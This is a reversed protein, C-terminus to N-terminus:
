ELIVFIEGASNGQVEPFYAQWARAPLVQYEGPQLLVLQYTLEYTGAPLQEALWAIHDDYVRPTSFWWWGWGEDLPSRPDFQPVVGLQSTKLSADLVEAGAPLYDEVMLYYATEPVTLTLRVTVLEGQHASRLSPCAKGPCDAQAPYYARTLDLGSSLPSVQEVPRNVLLHARYYLRGNGRDREFVLANPDDQYLDALSVETSIPSMDEGPSARGAILRRGNLSVSFEFDGSLEGTGRMVQAIAMLTWATEYTSPWAGSAERHAMLYRMADAVLPSAPDHRALAYLVVATAQIPTSMNQWDPESNEWHAGTASRSASSELDSFLQRAREDQSDLRVITLALFAQAWPNLRHRVDFLQAVGAPDGQGAEALAYQMFSLRDFQWTEELMDVSPLAARLYDAGKRIIEQDLSVGAERARSLGLIVFASITPDSQSGQWWGWGGDDNQREALQSLSDNLIRDLRARLEPEELGFEQMVRYIELNPLFRSILQDTTPYPYDELVDLARLLAGGLTSAVEIELRGGEPDFSRPLSVSELLEGAQDLIGATGFTQPAVYRLVPLAGMAPRTVDQLINGRPDTARASFVLDIQAVDQAKGWWEVRVRDGGPITVRQSASVPDDFLFGNADLSVDAALDASTNNQVIAAILTHDGLVLFRPSVPRVLLDKTTIVETQGQGVRTDATVGRAEVQWTTLNDPLTVQVQARGEKDTLIEANWYATDPFEERVQITLEPEGGGGGQGVPAIAPVQTSGALSLSTNVGLPQESYFAPLVDEANPEALALVAQDVVALSFEGQVPEGDADTVRLELTIEQRPQARDPKGTLEVRLTKAVPAVPLSVYGQRFDVMGASAKLLTVSVYVNPADKDTLPISLNFGSAEPELIQYRFIIGREITVLARVGEGLPNPVFIQATDGPSYLDKDATLPLKQNPLDPWIAEGEGGSWLLVQSLAATNGSGKGFVDLQYTGPEPPTFVLRATGDSNTTFESSEIPTYQPILEVFGGQEDPQTEDKRWIVKKFEAGLTQVGAPRGDWDAVMIDFAAESGARVFWAEPRIGIYVRAPNVILESRASVPLGSEDIATAELIYRYRSDAELTEIQFVYEGRDNTKGEGQGIQEGLVPQFTVPFPSLWPTFVKGVQYGPLFYEEQRRFLTWTISVDGAPADFFYRASIKAQPSEGALVEEQSFDIQLDIEPKRYEAVHFAVSSYSAEESLLRYIGPQLDPPLDYEGHATGFSSLPLDFTAITEGLDNVLDLPLFDQDPLSYRGNYVQRAVARFHVTQGPRYLPRDTYIYAELHPPSYDIRYGFGDGTMGRNWGTFAASFSNEGPKGLIVSVQSYVKERVPVEDKFVGDAGTQGEVLLRGDEDYIRVPVGVVPSGDSLGVAWVLADTASLKFTTNVDSVVLLFPGGYLFDQELNFRLIYFGPSLPSGELSLPIRVPTSKDAPINLPQVHREEDEPRYDRRLEYGQPGILALFDQEPVRGLTISLQQLNTVQAVISSEAPRVFLIDSYFSVVLAPDLPATSFNLVFEQGLRGNWRDPLNPSVILTYNTRPSFRGNIWLVRDESDTFAQLDQVEPEITIFQLIDRSKVPANFHLEVSSFVNKEGGQDPISKEVALESVTRFVLRNESGLPTGGASLMNADLAITYLRDRRLTRSAKFTFQTADVNWTLNGPVEEGEQDRLTLSASLSQPDMPQNFTLEIAADLPVGRQGDEPHVSLLEPHATTFTWSEQAALPSGDVATLREQLRVTYEVGGALAPRPTFVYTSTSLWKGEGEAPPELSFAQPLSDPDAGLPVVPRNFTALIAASPDVQDAGAEPLHQTLRLYDGTRFTLRLPARLFLGSASRAQEGLSFTIEQDPKFAEEPIFRVTAKDLWEFRGKPGSFAAEVSAPEMPQNFFFTFTANLAVISDAPPDTEILDPPLPVPTTTPVPTAVPSTVATIVQAPTPTAKGRLLGPLTCALASIVLFLGALFPKRIWLDRIWHLITRFSHPTM